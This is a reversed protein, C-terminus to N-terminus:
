LMIKSGRLFFQVLIKEEIIKKEAMHVLKCNGFKMFCGVVGVIKTNLVAVFYIERSLWKKMENIGPQRAYLLENPFFGREEDWVMKYLLSIDKVDENSAHRVVINKNM